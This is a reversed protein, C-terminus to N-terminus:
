VITTKTNDPLAKLLVQLDDPAVLADNSGSFLLFQVHALNTKLSEIDYNPPTKQGYVKM